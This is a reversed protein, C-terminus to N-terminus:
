GRILEQIEEATLKRPLRAGLQGVVLSAAHSALRGAEPWSLGHTIGHLIGAAYMDGAGTTDVAQVPVGEIPHVEGDHMLISGHPGLTLAVNEAHDHLVKACDVPDEQQTLSQAEAENCFLLDVPGEILDWFLDRRLDIVFPDSVTLAVKSGNSKALEIARLAAASTSEGTFLYGEVYVYRAGRLAEATVDEPGLESSSGLHTLMTRQADPTILVCSTGTHGTSVRGSLRVGLELLDDRYFSGLEDDGVRGCYAASGGLDAVGAITNAASGGSCRNVPHDRLAELVARQRAEEVLAMRGKEAELGELFAEDVEVQLDVLANGVGFVDLPRIENM